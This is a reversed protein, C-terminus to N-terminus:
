KSLYIFPNYSLRDEFIVFLVDVNRHTGNDKKRIIETEKRKLLIELM